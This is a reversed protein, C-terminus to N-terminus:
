HTNAEKAARSSDGQIHIGVPEACFPSLKEHHQTSTLRHQYDERSTADGRVDKMGQQYGQNNM